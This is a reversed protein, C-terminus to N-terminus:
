NGTAGNLVPCALMANLLQKQGLPTAHINDVYARAPDLHVRDAIAGVGHMEALALLERAGSTLEASGRDARTEHVVLCAGSPLARLRDLLKPLAARADGEIRGPPEPRVPKPPDFRRLPDLIQLLPRTTPRNMESIPAFDRDDTLDDTSTVLIAADAGFLGFADIWALQNGPGWSNAAINMAEIRRGDQTRMASLITTALAAQDTFMHGFVVSDGIVAIRFVDQPKERAIPASRMGFANIAILNSRYRVSQDPANVYEITPHTAYLNREGIAIRLYIEVAVLLVLVAGAGPLLWRLPASNITV